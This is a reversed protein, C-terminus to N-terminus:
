DDRLADLIEARDVYFVIAQDGRFARGLDPGDVALAVTRGDTTSMTVDFPGFSGLRYELLGHAGAREVAARAGSLTPADTLVDLAAAGHVVLRLLLRDGDRELYRETIV